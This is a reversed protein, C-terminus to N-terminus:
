ALFSGCMTQWLLHSRSLTRAGSESFSSYTLATVPSPTCSSLSLSPRRVPEMCFSRSM